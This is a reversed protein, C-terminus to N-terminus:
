HQWTFSHIFPKNRKLKNLSKHIFFTKLTEAVSLFACNVFYRFSLFLTLLLILLSLIFAFSSLTLLRFWWHNNTNTIAMIEHVNWKIIVDWFTDRRYSLIIFVNMWENMWENMWVYLSFWTIHNKCLNKRVNDRKAMLEKTEDPKMREVTVISFCLYTM